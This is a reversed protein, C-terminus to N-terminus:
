TNGHVYPAAGESVYGMEEELKDVSAVSRRHVARGETSVHVLVRRRDHADVERHALADSILRDVTRTLTPGTLGTLERLETM